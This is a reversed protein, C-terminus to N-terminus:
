ESGEGIVPPMVLRDDTFLSDDKVWLDNRHEKDEEGRATAGPAAPQLFGSGAAGTRGLANAGMSRAAASPSGIGASGGPGRSAADRGFGGVGIGGFVGGVAGSGGPPAAPGVGPPPAQSPPQVPGPGPTVYDEPTVQDIPQPQGGPPEIPGPRGPDNPPRRGPEEGPDSGRPPETRAGGRGRGGPPRGGPPPVVPPGPPTGPEVPAAAGTLKPAEPLPQVLSVHSQSSSQYAYLARNAADNAARQKEVERDINSSMGFIRFPSTLSDQAADLFGYTVPPQAPVASTVVSVADAQAVVRGQTTTTTAGSEGAWGAAQQMAAGAQAGAVSNWEGGLEGVVTRLRADTEALAKGLRTVAAQAASFEGAGKGQQMWGHKESLPYGEFRYSGVTGESM